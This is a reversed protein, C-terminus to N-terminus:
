IIKEHLGEAEKNLFYHQGNGANAFETIQTKGQENDIEFSHLTSHENNTRILDIVKKPDPVEGNIILFVHRDLDTSIAANSFIDELPQYIDANFEQIQDIAYELTEQSYDTPESFMREFKSGFSIVNFRSGPPISRLFLILVNKAISNASRKFPESRDFVFNFEGPKM